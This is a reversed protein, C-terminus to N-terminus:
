RGEDQEEVAPPVRASVVLELNGVGGDQGKLERRINM